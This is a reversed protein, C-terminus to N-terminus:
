KRPACVEVCPLLCLSSNTHRCASACTTYIGGINECIKKDLYECELYEDIWEGNKEECVFFLRLYTQINEIVQKKEPNQM